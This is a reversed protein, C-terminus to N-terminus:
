FKEVFCSLSNYGAYLFNLNEIFQKVTKVVILLITVIIKYNLGVIGDGLQTTDAGM